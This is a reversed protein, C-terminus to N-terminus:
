LDDAEFGRLYSKDFKAPSSFFQPLIVHSLM